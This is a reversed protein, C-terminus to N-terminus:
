SARAQSESRSQRALRHQRIAKAAEPASESHDRMRRWVDHYDLDPAAERMYEALTVRRDGILVMRNRRTNNHQTLWSAWRCNSPDYSKAPDVRDLTFGEPCPGMDAIFAAFDDRWRDCVTIGRGGYHAFNSSSEVYCRSKMARWITYERRHTRAMDGYKRNGNGSARMAKQECGCSRTDGNLLYKGMKVATQGCDCRCMWSARRAKQRPAREVVTLLGFRQGTLDKAPSLAM